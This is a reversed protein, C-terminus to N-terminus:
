GMGGGGKRWCGQKKGMILFREYNTQRVEEWEEASNRNNRMHTFGYKDKESQGIKSLM